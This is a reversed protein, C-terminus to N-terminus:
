GAPSKSPFIHAIGIKVSKPGFWAIEVPALGFDALRLGSICKQPQPNILAFV